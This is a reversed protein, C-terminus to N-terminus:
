REFEIILKKLLGKYCVCIWKVTCVRLKVNFWRAFVLVCNVTRWAKQANRVIM